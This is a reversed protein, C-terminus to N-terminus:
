QAPPPMPHGVTLEFIMINNGFSQLSLDNFGASRLQLKQAIDADWGAQFVWIKQGQPLGYTEVLRNWLAAFNEATFVTGAKYGASVVSHGCSFAEFDSNSTEFVIPQQHCLYHGLILDSEYDTFLLTSPDVRHDIFEMASLIRAHSQDARDITPRRPKGFAICLALVLAAIAVGRTWKGASLRAIAVSLGAVGPIVLFAVHRTGGYPYKHALSVAAAVAFPLLLFIGLRLSSAPDPSPIKKRLLFVIGVVFLVGMVDGLALQGFFYQFVGFTHGLLFTFPNDHAPDFYSRRLFFESMWGQMATRSEGVGLKSIHTKYFFLALTLAGLQGVGWAALLGRPQREWFIRLLSYIGVAGAFLLASYHSAMALYLSLSFAAMRAASHRAFAADLFYLATALFALLLSYQRIEASLAVLPPLLAVFLLGILAPLPGAANALWKYFMWCFAVGALVLPARLWLESTGAVRWFYLILTLLPPHSATRSAQYASALSFQNALRFHLAEDPNLFTGHAAWLRALLGLATIFWATRDPHRQLWEIENEPTLPKM